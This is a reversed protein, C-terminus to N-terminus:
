ARQSQVSSEALLEPLAEPLAQRSQVASEALLGPLASQVPAEALLEPLAPRSQVPQPKRPHARRPAALMRARQALEARHEWQLNPLAPLV